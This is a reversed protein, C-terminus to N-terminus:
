QSGGRLPAAIAQPFHGHTGRRCVRSLRDANLRHETREGIAAQRRDLGAIHCDNHGMRIILRDSAAALEHAQAPRRDDHNGVAGGAVSVIRPHVTEIRYSVIRRPPPLLQECRQLDCPLANCPDYAEIDGILLRCERQRLDRSFQRRQKRRQIDGNDEGMGVLSPVRVM